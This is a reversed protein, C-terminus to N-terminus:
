SQCSAFEELAKEVALSVEQKALEFLRAQQEDDDTHLSAINAAADDIIRKIASSM